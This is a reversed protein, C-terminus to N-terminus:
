RCVGPTKYTVIQKASYPSDWSVSEESSNQSKLRKTVTTFSTAENQRNSGRGLCPHTDTNRHTTRTSAKLPRNKM